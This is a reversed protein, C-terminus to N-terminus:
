NSTKRSHVGYSCLQYKLGRCNDLILDCGEPEFVLLQCQRETERQRERTESTNEVEEKCGGESVLVAEDPCQPSTRPVEARRRYGTEKYAIHFGPSKM